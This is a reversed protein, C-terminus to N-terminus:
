KAIKNKNKPKGTLGVFCSRPPIYSAHLITLLRSIMFCVFVGDVVM